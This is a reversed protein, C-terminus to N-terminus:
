FTCLYLGPHVYFPMEKVSFFRDLEHKKAHLTKVLHSEVHINPNKLLLKRLLCVNRYTMKLTTCIEMFFESTIEAVRKKEAYPTLFELKQGFQGSLNIRAKEKGAEDVKQKCVEFAVQEKTNPTLSNITNERRRAATCNRHM